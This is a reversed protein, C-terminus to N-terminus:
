GVGVRTAPEMMRRVDAFVAVVMFAMVICARIRQQRFISFVDPWQNVSACLAECM